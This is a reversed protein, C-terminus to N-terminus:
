VVEEVVQNEQVVKESQISKVDKPTTRDFLLILAPLLLLDCILAVFIALAGLKGANAMPGIAFSLIGFGIGLVLTTFIIAQGTEMIATKLARRINGDIIVEKRYHAILHITDDVAVGIIIPGILLTNMDLPIDFWGLISYTLLSPILNPLIAILGLRFSGFVLLLIVSIAFIAFALSAKTSESIIVSAKMMMALTGTLTVETEPYKQKLEDVTKNIDKQMLEFVDQYSAADTNRLNVTIHSKSYDDSVLKRRDTPNANNFMFLTQSVVNNSDPITYKDKRGEHLKQNADMVIDALSATRVVYNSYKREIEDQLVVIKNLVFPDQFAYAKGMELFIEMNQTGMMHEDVQEYSKRLWSSEDYNEMMNFSVVVKSAGIICLGVLLTFFVSIGLSRKQILPELGELKRQLINSISPIFRKISARKKERVKKKVPSWLNLMLPLLYIAFILEITIGVATMYGFTKIHVIPAFALALFGIVTTFTTLLCAFSVKRYTNRMATQHDDKKNRYFLYGSLVHITDVMGMALLMMVTLMLYFSTTVGLWGSFGLTWITALIILSIPWIVGSLSRFIFWLLVIMVVIMLLYLMGLWAMIEADYISLVAHGVPYFELHESYKSDELFTNIETMLAYYDKTDTSKFRVKEDITQPTETMEEMVMVEDSLSNDLESEEFDVPIAGFDTEILIGGYKMDKSYYALEFKKQLKAIQHITDLNQKSIPKEKEVLSRSILMDDKIELFNANPLSTIRIIHGLPSNEEEKIKARANIIDQCLENAAELSKASFLDGDKPKYVIYIGDDSGFEAKFDDLAVKVPDDDRFWGETTLDFKLKPIGMVAIVTLVILLLLIVLKRKAVFDPVTEFYKSLLNQINKM